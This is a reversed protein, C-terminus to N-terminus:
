LYSQLSGRRRIDLTACHFGGGFMKYNMFPLPIPDFGWSKLSAIMSVQSAECIVRKEDLKLMNLSIWKSVLSLYFRWSSNIPDPQPAILIQWDKLVKPLDAVNVFEPNILVKGPALPVFTTDIHMPQTCLTKIQHFHYGEGLHRSLWDVGKKNTVNSLTYFIDRGCRTFDAADFLPEHETIMYRMAEGPLPPIYAYDFSEDSLMPKPASTWKAGQDFYENMLKRYAYVEFYRSRWAMPTEIMENGIILIGDRPSATCFGKSSWFPTKSNFHFDVPEPRRVKVGEKELLKALGELERKAPDTIISPYRMGALPRYLKAATKPLNGTFTIHNVPITANELSGVIVEELPDWENHSNVPCENGSGNSNALSSM